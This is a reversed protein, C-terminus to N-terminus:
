RHVEAEAPEEKLAARGGLEGVLLLHDLLGALTLTAGAFFKLFDYNALTPPSIGMWGAPAALGLAAIALLLYHTQFWRCGRNMWTVLCFLAVAGYGVRVRGLPDSLAFAAALIAGSSLSVVVIWHPPNKAPREVVGLVRRYHRNFRTCTIVLGLYVLFVLLAERWGKHLPYGIAMLGLGFRVRELGQLENFHSTVFRIRDLDQHKMELNRGVPKCHWGIRERQLAATLLRRYFRVGCITSCEPKGMAPHCSEAVGVVKRGM